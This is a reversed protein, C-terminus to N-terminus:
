NESAVGCSYRCYLSGKSTVHMPASLVLNRLMTRWAEAALLLKDGRLIKGQISDGYDQSRM